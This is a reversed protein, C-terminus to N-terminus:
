ISEVSIQALVGSTFTAMGQETKVSWFPESVTTEAM